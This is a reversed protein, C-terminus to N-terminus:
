RKAGKAEKLKQQLSEIKDQQKLLIQAVHGSVDMGPGVSFGVSSDLCVFDAGNYGSWGSVKRGIIKGVSQWFILEEKAQRGKEKKRGYEERRRKNREDQKLPM